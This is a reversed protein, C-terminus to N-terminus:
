PSMDGIGTALELEARELERRLNASQVASIAFVSGKWCTMPAQVVVAGQERDARVYIEVEGPVRTM